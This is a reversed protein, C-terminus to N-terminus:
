GGRGGRGPLVQLSFFVLCFCLKAKKQPFHKPFLKTKFRWSKVKKQQLSFSLFYFGAKKKQTHTYTVKQSTLAGCLTLIDFVELSPSIGLGPGSAPRCNKVLSGLRIVMVQLPRCVCRRRKIEGGALPFHGRKGADRM